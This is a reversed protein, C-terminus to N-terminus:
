LIFKGDKIGKYKGNGIKRDNIDFIEMEGQVFPYFPNDSREFFQYNEGNILSHQLVFLVLSYNDNLDSQNIKLMNEICKKIKLNGKNTIILNNILSKPQFKNDDNIIDDYYNSRFDRHLIAFNNKVNKIIDDLPLIIETDIDIFCGGNKYLWCLKLLDEKHEQKIFSDYKKVFDEGYNEFLFLKSEQEDLFYYNWNGNKEKLNNSIYNPILDKQKYTQLINREIINSEEINPVEVNLNRDLIKRAKKYNNSTTKTEMFYFWLIVLTIIIYFTLLM